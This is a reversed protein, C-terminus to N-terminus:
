YYIAFSGNGFIILFVFDDYHGFTIFLHFKSYNLQSMLGCIRGLRVLRLTSTRTLSETTILRSQFRVQSPFIMNPRIIILSQESTAIVDVNNTGSEAPMGIPRWIHLTATRDPQGTSKRRFSFSRIALLPGIIQLLYM